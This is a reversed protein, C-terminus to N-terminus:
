PFFGSKPTVAARIKSDVRRTITLGGFRGVFLYRENSFEDISSV